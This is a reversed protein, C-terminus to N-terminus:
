LSMSALETFHSISPVHLGMKSGVYAPIAASRALSVGRM